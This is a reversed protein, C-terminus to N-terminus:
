GKVMIVNEKPLIALEKRSIETDEKVFLNKLARHNNIERLNDRPGQFL